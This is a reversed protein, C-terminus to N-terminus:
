QAALSASITYSEVGIGTGEVPGLHGLVPHVVLDVVSGLIAKILDRAWLEVGAFGAAKMCELKHGLEGGMTVTNFGFRDLAIAM